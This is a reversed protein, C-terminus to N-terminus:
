PRRSAWYREPVGVPRARHLVEEPRALTFTGRDAAADEMTMAVGPPLWGGRLKSVAVTAPSVARTGATYAGQAARLVPAAGRPSPGVDRGGDTTPSVWSTARSGPSASTPGSPVTRSWTCASAPSGPGCTPGPSAPIDHYELVVREVDDWSEPKSAYALQYEGGECDLKVLTM